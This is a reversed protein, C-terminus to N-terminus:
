NACQIDSSSLEVASHEMPEAPCDVSILRTETEANHRCSSTTRWFTAKTRYVGARTEGAVLEWLRLERADLQRIRHLTAEALRRNVALLDGLAALLGCLFSLTLCFVGVQLSQIHGNYTPDIFYHGAFRAVGLIGVCGMAVALLSFTRGPWYALYSRLIVPISLLLYQPISRFLRSPRTPPNVHVPISEVALGQVGAHILTELTYSFRNHVFQMLVARRNLARFGSTADNVQVGSAMRVLSTGWRQLLKKVWSFHGISNTQRDGVVLDARGTLIPDILWEIDPACYQNDADTNVVLDAGLRYCAEMGASYAASLGRNKPFRVVYHVGCAEAVESTLDSSGDDIVVCFIEDVGPLDRPLELVTQPLDHQENFCPIQIALRM